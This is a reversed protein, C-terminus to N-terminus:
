RKLADCDYILHRAVDLFALPPAGTWRTFALSFIESTDQGPEANELMGALNVLLGRVDPRPRGDPFFPPCEAHVALFADAVEPALPAKCHRCPSPPPFAPHQAVVPRPQPPCEPCPGPDDFRQRIARLAPALTGCHRLFHEVTALECTLVSDAVHDDVAGVLERVLHHADPPLIAQIEAMLEVADAGWLEEDAVHDQPM